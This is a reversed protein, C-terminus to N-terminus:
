AKPWKNEREICTVVVEMRGSSARLIEQLLGCWRLKERNTMRPYDLEVELQQLQDLRSLGQSVWGTSGEVLEWVSVDADLQVWNRWKDQQGEAINSYNQETKKLVLRLGRLGTWFGCLTTWRLSYLDERIVHGDYVELRAYRTEARQWVTLGESFSVAAELGTRFWNVFSFENEHFPISRTEHYIQRCSQLLSAPIYCMPRHSSLLRKEVVIAELAKEDAAEATGTGTKAVVVRTVYAPTKIFPAFRQSPVTNSLYVLHYIQLRIECPLDLFSLHAM